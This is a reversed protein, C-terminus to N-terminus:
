GAIPCLPLAALAPRDAPRRALPEPPAGDRGPRRGWGLGLTAGTSVAALQAPLFAWLHPSAYYGAALALAQGATALLVARWLPGAHRGAVLRAGLVALLPPVVLATGAMALAARRFNEATPDITGNAFLRLTGYGLGLVLADGAIAGLSALVLERGGFPGRLRPVLSPRAQPPLALPPRAALADGGLGTGESAAAPVPEAAVDRPPAAPGASTATLHLALALALM